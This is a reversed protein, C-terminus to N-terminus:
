KSSLHEVVQAMAGARFLQIRKLFVNKNTYSLKVPPKIKVNGHITNYGTQNMGEM